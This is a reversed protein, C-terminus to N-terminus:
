STVFEPPELMPILAEYKGALKVFSFAKAMILWYSASFPEVEVEDLLDIGSRM